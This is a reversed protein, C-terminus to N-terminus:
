GYVKGELEKLEAELERLLKQYTYYGVKGEVEAKELQKMSEVVQRLVKVASAKSIAKKRM